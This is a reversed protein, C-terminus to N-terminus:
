EISSNVLKSIKILFQHIEIMAKTDKACYMLLDSTVDQRQKVSPYTGSAMFAYATAAEQGNTISLDSYDINLNLVSLVKKMSSKGHLKINYYNKKMISELDIIRNLINSLADHLNPFLNILKKIYASEFSAYTIISSNNNSTLYKILNKSLEYRCDKTSTAIYEKHQLLKGYVDTKDLSFQTLIQTNPAVNKYLPIATSFSEFDLYFFPPIIKNLDQKLNHSIYTKNHIICHKVIRQRATLKFDLPIRDVYYIGRKIFSNLVNQSLQPIAFIHRDLNVKFCEKFSPCYKCYSKLYPRPMINSIINMVVKNSIKLFKRTTITVIETCDLPNFFKALEMGVRYHSSIYLITTKIVNIGAKALVMACFSIDNISKMKHKTNLKIIFLHYGDTKEKKLIDIKAKYGNSYISLNCFIKKNHKNQALNINYNNNINVINPFSDCILKIIKDKEFLYFTNAQYIKVM